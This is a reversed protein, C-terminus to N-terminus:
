RSKGKRSRRRICTRRWELILDMDSVWTGAIKTAPFDRERILRLVTPESLSVYRCISKMGLLSPPADLGFVSAATPKENVM